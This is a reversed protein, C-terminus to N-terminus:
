ADSWREAMAILNHLGRRAVGRSARMLLGSLVPVNFLALPGPLSSIRVIRYAYAVQCGGADPQIEYRSVVTWEVRKGKKTTLVAETVFEFVRARTAETVVSRDRFEGMPDRGVSSFETGVKAPEAPADIEVIRTNKKQRQGGWIAHSPLDALLDYVAEAPAASRRELRSELDHRLANARGTRQANM